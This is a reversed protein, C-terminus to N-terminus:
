EKVIAILAVCLGYQMATYVIEHAESDSFTFTVEGANISSSAIWKPAPREPIFYGSNPDNQIMLTITEASKPVKVKYVPFATNLPDSIPKATTTYLAAGSIAEQLSESLNGITIMNVYSGAPRTGVFDVVGDTVPVAAPDYVCDVVAAVKDGDKILLYAGEYKLSSQSFGDAQNEAYKDAEVETWSNGSIPDLRVTLMDAASEPATYKIWWDERAAKQATANDTSIVEYTYSAPIGEFSIAATPKSSALRYVSAAEFEEYLWTNASKSLREFTMEKLADIGGNVNSLIGELIGEAGDQEIKISIVGEALGSFDSTFFGSEAKDATKILVYANRTAGGNARAMIKLQQERFKPSEALADAPTLEFDLWTVNDDYGYSEKTALCVQVGDAAYFYHPNVEEEEYNGANSFIISETGLGGMPIYIKRYDPISAKLVTKEGDSASNKRVVNLAADSVAGDPFASAKAAFVIETVGKGTEGVPELWALDTAPISWEFNSEIKAPCTFNWLDGDFELRFRDTAEASYVIGNDDSKWTEAENDWVAPYVKFYPTGAVVKISAITRTEDNMTMSVTCIYDEDLSIEETIHVIVKEQGASGTLSSRKVGAEEFWFRTAPADLSLEWAMNPEISLEVTEGASKLFEQSEPFNPIIPEPTKEECSAFCFMIGIMIANKIIDSINKM